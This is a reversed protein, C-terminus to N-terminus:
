IRYQEHLIYIPVFSSLPQKRQNINSQKESTETSIFALFFKNETIKKQFSVSTKETSKEVLTQCTTTKNPKEVNEYTPINLAKKIDQKTSCPLTLCIMLAIILTRFAIHQNLWKM